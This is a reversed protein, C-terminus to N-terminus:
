TEEKRIEDVVNNRQKVAKKLTEKDGSLAAYMCSLDCVTLLCLLAPNIM